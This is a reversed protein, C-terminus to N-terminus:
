QGYAKLAALVKAYYMQQVNQIGNMYSQALQKENSQFKQAAKGGSACGCKSNVTVNNFPPISIVNLYLPPLENFTVRVPPLNKYTINLNPLPVPPEPTELLPSQNLESQVLGPLTTGSEISSKHKLLLLMVIVTGLGIIAIERNRQNGIDSM